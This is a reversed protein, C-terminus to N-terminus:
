NVEELTLRWKDQYYPMKRYTAEVVASTLPFSLCGDLDLLFVYHESFTLWTTISFAFTLYPTFKLFRVINSRPSQIMSPSTADEYTFLTPCTASNEIQCIWLDESAEECFRTCSM